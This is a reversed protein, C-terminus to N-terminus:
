GSPRAVDAEERDHQRLVEDRRDRRLDDQRERAPLDSLALERQQPRQQGSGRARDGARQDEVPDGAPAPARRDEGRVADAADGGGVQVADVRSKAAVADPEHQEPTAHGAQARDDRHRGPHRMHVEPQEDGQRREARRDPVAHQDAGADRQAALELLDVRDDAGERGRHDRQEREDHEDDEHPQTAACATMSQGRHRAGDAAGGTLGAPDDLCARRSLARTSATWCRRRVSLLASPVTASCSRACSCMASPVSTM